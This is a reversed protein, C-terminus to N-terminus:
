NEHYVYYGGSSSSGFLIMGWATGNLYVTFPLFTKGYWGAMADVLIM